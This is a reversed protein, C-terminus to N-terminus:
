WVAQCTGQSSGVENECIGSTVNACRVTNLCNYPVEGCGMTNWQNLSDTMGNLDPNTNVFTDCSPCMLEGKAKFQCIPAAVTINCKSAEQLAIVYQENLQICKQEKQVTCCKEPLPRDNPGACGNGGRAISAGACKSSFEAACCDDPYVGDAPTRCTLNEDLWAGLCKDQGPWIIPKCCAQYEGNCDSLLGSDIKSTDAPCEPFIGPDRSAICFGGSAECTPEEVPGWIGKIAKCCIENGSSCDALSISIEVTDAPCVPTAGPIVSHCSGGTEMCLPEKAVRRCVSDIWGCAKSANCEQENIFTECNITTDTKGGTVDNPSTSAEKDSGCAPLIVALSICCLYGHITHSSKFM